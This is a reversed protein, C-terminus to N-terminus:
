IWTKTAIFKDVRSEANEVISTDFNMFDLLKIANRTQSAGQKLKYDFIIGDDTIQECFNYNDYKDKLISTLEIDHSAVMCMCNNDHLYELVSASAAIREITNTGKLIEDIFCTCIVNEVKDIIRKLSKIETVFYSDGESIDDRVAMSSIVLSFRTSFETATCTFITQALIGNIALAKIFTSKGSANSGTIISDNNIKGSNSVPNSLLPHYIEEFDIRGEEKFIPLCYHPLSERFSLICIALDLEGFLKYLNHFNDQHKSIIEISKNYIRLSILFVFNLYENIVDFESNSKLSIGVIKKGVSKFVSYETKLKSSLDNDIIRLIKNCCNLMGSFYQLAFLETDLKSKKQFYIIGNLISTLIVCAIGLSVNFPIIIASLLPIFAFIKYVLPKGILKSDPNFMLTCLGNYNVKGLKALIMQIKLREAPHDKLYTILKEREVLADETFKPEHMVSYLYEEGVSTLCVNIREYVNNMDLDNWTINDIDNEDNNKIKLLHYNEISNFECDPEKPIKGFNEVITVILKRRSTIAIVVIVTIVTLAVLIGFIIYEM